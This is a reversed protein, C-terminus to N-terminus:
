FGTRISIQRRVRELRRYLTKTETGLTHAVAKVTRGEHYRMRVLRRDDASLERLASRVALRKRREESRQEEAAIPDDFGPGVVDRLEEEPVMVPRVRPPLQDALARLQDVPPAGRKAKLIEIAEDKTLGDRYVLRELAVAADGLRSAAASARWKGWMANRWDLLLRTVVVTIYTRLSSRGKFQQFIDYDRQLLRLHVTQSFDQAEDDSLRHSRAVDRIVQSLLALEEAPPTPSIRDV